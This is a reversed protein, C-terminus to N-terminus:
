ETETQIAQAIHEQYRGSNARLPTALYKATRGDQHRWTTEEHQRVAYATDYSVAGQVTPGSTDMSTKASRSLDGQDYPVLNQSERKLDETVEQVGRVLGARIADDFADLAADFDDAM